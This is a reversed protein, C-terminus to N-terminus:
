GRPETTYWDDALLDGHEPVWPQPVGRAGPPWHMTIRGADADLSLAEGDWDARTVWAGRKLAMVAGGFMMGATLREGEALM